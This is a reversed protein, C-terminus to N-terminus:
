AGEHEHVARSTRLEWRYGEQVDQVIAEISMTGGASWAERWEEDTVRTRAAAVQAEHAEQRGAPRSLTLSERLTSSASWLRAAALVDGEEILVAALGEVADVFSSLSGFPGLLPLADRYFAVARARDGRLHENRGMAVLTQGVGAIDDLDRRLAVARELLERAAAYQGERMKVEGLRTLGVAIFPRNGLRENMTLGESLLRAALSLDGQMLALVGLHTRVMAGQQRDGLDNYARLSMELWMRAREFDGQARALMGASDLAKAREPTGAGAGTALLDELWRRGESLHGREDWFLGANGALRLGIVEHGNQLSWALAARLNDHEQELRQVWAAQEGGWLGDWGHQALDAFFSAHREYIQQDANSAALM